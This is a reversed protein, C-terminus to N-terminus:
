HTEQYIEERERFSFNAKIYSKKKKKGCSRESKINMARKARRTEARAIEVLQM